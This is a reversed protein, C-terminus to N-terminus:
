RFSGHVKTSPRKAVATPTVIRFSSVLAVLNAIVSRLTRVDRFIDRIPPNSGHRDCSQTPIYPLNEEDDFIYGVEDCRLASM